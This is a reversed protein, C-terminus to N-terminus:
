ELQDLVDALGVTAVQHKDIFHGALKGKLEITKIASNVNPNGSKDFCKLALNKMQELENFCDKASYKIENEFVEQKNKQAQKLWPSVNPNKLLKSAEVTISTDKMDKCDYAKKYAETANGNNITYHLVFQQQKYTLKPLVTDNM